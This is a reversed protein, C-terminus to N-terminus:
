SSFENFLNITIVVYLMLILYKRARKEARSGLFSTTELTKQSFNGCFVIIKRKETM